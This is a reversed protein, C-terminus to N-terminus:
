IKHLFADMDDNREDFCPMKRGRALIGNVHGTTGIEDNNGDKDWKAKM